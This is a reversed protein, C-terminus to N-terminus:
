NRRLISLILILGRLIVLCILSMVQRFSLAKISFRQIYQPQFNLDIGGDKKIANAIQAHSPASPAASARHHTWGTPLHERILAEAEQKNM